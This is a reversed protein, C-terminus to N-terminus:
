NLLTIAIVVIKTMIIEGILYAVIGGAGTQTVPFLVGREESCDGTIGELHPSHNLNQPMKSPCPNTKEVTIIVIADISSLGELLFHLQKSTTNRKRFDQRKIVVM